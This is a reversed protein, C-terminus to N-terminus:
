SLGAPATRPCLETDSRQKGAMSACLAEHQRLGPGFTGMDQSGM